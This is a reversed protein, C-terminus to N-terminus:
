HYGLGFEGQDLDGDLKLPGGFTGVTSDVSVQSYGGFVHYSGGFEFSGRIYGGDGEPNNLAEEDIHLKAYGGEVYTYSVGDAACAAFPVAALLAALAFQKKM